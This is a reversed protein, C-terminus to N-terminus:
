QLKTCPEAFKSFQGPVSFSIVAYFLVHISKCLCDFGHIQFFTYLQQPPPSHEFPISLKVAIREINLFYLM